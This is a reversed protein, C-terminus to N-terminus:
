FITRPLFRGSASSEVTQVPLWRQGQEHWHFWFAVTKENGGLTRIPITLCILSSDFFDDNRADPFRFASPAVTEAAGQAGRHLLGRVGNRVTWEPRHLTAKDVGVGTVQFHQGDDPWIREMIDKNLRPDLEGGWQSMLQTYRDFNGHLHVSLVAATQEILQMQQSPTLEQQFIEDHALSAALTTMIIPHQPLDAKNPPTLMPSVPPAGKSASQAIYVTLAAIVIAGICGFAFANQSFKSNLPM